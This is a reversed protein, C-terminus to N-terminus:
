ESLIWEKIEAATKVPGYKEEIDKLTMMIPGSFTDDFTYPSFKMLQGLTPGIKERYGDHVKYCKAFLMDEGVAIMRQMRDESDM